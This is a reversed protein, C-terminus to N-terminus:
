LEQSVVTVQFQTHFYVKDRLQENDLYKMVAVSLSGSCWAELGGATGTGSM